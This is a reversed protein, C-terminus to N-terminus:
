SALFREFLADHLEIHEMWILRILELEGPSM